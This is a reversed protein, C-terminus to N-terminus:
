RTILLYFIKPTVHERRLGKKKSFCVLLRMGASNVAASDHITAVVRQFNEYDVNLHRLLEHQVLASLTHM